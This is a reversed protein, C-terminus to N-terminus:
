LTAGVAESVAVCKAHALALLVPEGASRLLRYAVAQTPTLSAMAVATEEDIGVNQGSAMWDLAPDVASVEVFGPLIQVTTTGFKHTLAM